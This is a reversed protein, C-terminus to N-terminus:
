VENLSALRYYRYFASDEVGKAAVPGTVQQFKMAFHILAARQAEDFDNVDRLLLTERVFNFISKDTRPNRRKAEAAAREVYNVDRPAVSGPGTVYTRYVPLCAIVERLAFTLAYLTFD